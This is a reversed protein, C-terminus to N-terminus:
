RTAPSSAAFTRPELDHALKLLHDVGGCARCRYVAVGGDGGTVVIRTGTNDFSAREARGNGGQRYEGLLEGTRANWIRATGDDSATVLETSGRSFEADELRDTHGELIARKAGTHADWIRPGNDAGATVILKGDPSFRVISINAYSRLVFRTRGDRTSWAFATPGVAGVLLRGDPSMALIGVAPKHFSALKKASNADWVVIQGRISAAVFRGNSSFAVGHVYHSADLPRSLKQSATHWLELGKSTSLAIVSGDGSATPRQAVKFGPRRMVKAGTQANWAAIHSPSATLVLRGDPSFVAFPAEDPEDMRTRRGTKLDVVQASSGRLLVRSGAPSFTAEDAGGDLRPLRRAPAVPLRWLRADGDGSATLIRHGDPSFVASGVRDGHPLPLGLLRGTAADWVRASGDDSATLVWHRNPSFQVSTVSDTHGRLNAWIKALGLKLRPQWISVAGTSTGTVIRTGRPDFALSTVDGRPAVYAGKRGSKRDWVRAIGKGVTSSSFFYDVVPAATGTAVMTGDPSLAAASAARPGIRRLADGEPTWMETPGSSSAVLVHQGDQDFAAITLDPFSRHWSRVPTAGRGLQWVTLLGNAGAALARSGRRSFAVRFVHGSRAGLVRVRKRRPQWLLTRGDSTGALVTTGSRDIAADLINSRPEPTVGARHEGTMGDWVDLRDGSATLVVDGRGDFSAANVPAGTGPSLVAILTSTRVGLRLGNVALPPIQRHGAREKRILGEDLMLTKTPDTAAVALAESAVADDHLTLARQESMRADRALKRAAERQHRADNWEFGAFIAVGVALLALGGAVRAVRRFRRAAKEQASAQEEAERRQREEEAVRKKLDEAQRAAQREAVVKARWELIADALADHFIEYRVRDEALGPAGADAVRRLIRGQGSLRMLVPEIQAESWSVYGQLEYASLAIKTRAPTVLHHFVDAAIERETASLPRLAEDLHRRVIASAGGLSSLTEADLVGRAAASKWVQCLVLQLYSTEVRDAFGAGDHGGAGGGLLGSGPRLEPAGLVADVFTDEVAVSTGFRDNYAQVPGRIAEEAAARDLYDLRLLNGYLGPVRHELQDLKALADERLSLLVNVRLHPATLIRALELDLEDKEHYLFYEEFQDLLLLIYGVRETWREFAAVPAEGPSWPEVQVAGGLAREVGAHAVRMLGPLPPEVWSRFVAVALPAQFDPSRADEAPLAEDVMAELRPVGGALLVSSKGVASPGYVITLRSGRVNAEILRAERQRGYFFESDGPGFNDLGPFPGRERVGALPPAAEVTV